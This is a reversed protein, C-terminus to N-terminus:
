AGNTQGNSQTREAMVTKRYMNKVGDVPTNPKPWYHSVTYERDINTLICRSYWDEFSVM